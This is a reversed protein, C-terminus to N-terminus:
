RTSARTVYAPTGMLVLHSSVLGSVHRIGPLALTRASQYQQFHPVVRKQVFFHEGTEIPPLDRPTRTVELAAVMFVLYAAYGAASAGRDAYTLQSLDEPYCIMVPSLNTNNPSMGTMVQLCQSSGPIGSDRSRLPVARMYESSGTSPASLVKLAFKRPLRLHDVEYLCGM